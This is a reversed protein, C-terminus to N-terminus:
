RRFVATSCAVRAQASTRAARVEWSLVAAMVYEAVPISMCHSNCVMCQPPVSQWDLWEHSRRRNRGGGLARMGDRRRRTLALVTRHRTARDAVAPRRACRSLPMQLLKLQTMKQLVRPEVRRTVLVTVRQLLQELQAREQENEPEDAKNGACDDRDAARM